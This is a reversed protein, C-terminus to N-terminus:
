KKWLTYYAEVKRGKHEDFHITLEGNRINFHDAVQALLDDTKEDYLKNGLNALREVEEKPLNLNM